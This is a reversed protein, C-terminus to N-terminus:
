AKLMAMKDALTELLDDFSDAFSAVGEAQLEDTLEGFDIGLGALADIQTAAEDVGSMLAEPDITGHDTFADITAPPMTNVTNPGILDDVYLVDSYAPNKTSTSAWLVRQPRAGRAALAGFASDGFIDRYHRFALKANAVAIKGRLDMAEPSGVKELAGDAKTDVRSVFFSAVSAIRSPDTVRELGRVYANAIAVYSELSFMLTSNVNIGAAILQEIAPVGEPTAPVKIMLNPRDVREWLRHADAITGATDHALHPSVELSVLGDAGNSQDYVPKLIDAAGRIDRIALEEFVAGPEADPRDAVVDLIQADYLDSGAIAQQFITPNSTLGRIGDAVLQVLEGSELMDRKIFDIWVSQGAEHLEHLRTM